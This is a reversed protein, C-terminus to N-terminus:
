SRYSDSSVIAEPKHLMKGTLVLIGKGEENEDLDFSAGTVLPEFEIKFSASEFAIQDNNTDALAENFAYTENFKFGGEAWSIDLPTSTGVGDEFTFTVPEDNLLKTFYEGNTSQDNVTLKIEFKACNAGILKASVDTVKKSITKPDVDFSQTGTITAEAGAVFIDKITYTKGYELQGETPSDAVVVVPVTVDTMSGELDLTTEFTVDRGVDNSASANPDVETVTVSVIAEPKHLMKGTLVLIGKGEENEDLDFSAGTVLPEFEIKFSASEFAIQDNNTDALAENFAYTENFKFGGEAWSIDLPTSTGVGDEFTFTVPEDNLLKTFYEGNTSQDNVTLKIEFKACNAGILKASVDTVKKSITKPDVDFSQTGTITAEAGAVFIDKITYTKGYELQGETPSDAVVVVPVTVDTMSGELDLTTEFTVDRGVDNSASANPDVETVTVSVIAEPKHLMKGTLVLIGKGEENEDLDFSAGTVLPEFEIKFSASEFAIQDNNTDALAENFAYTENFKFGGEAWSIDLPTSTGVGDEFTFTVPEDNLLKTFYEGNTSQDNVTLKIEFKACNAGILKASVDTVKKSITKPDVDFSQTGTITAEAGAVFIDKITYTKGYELQGETPSDAVVVVPVTVDTMSGELDLTTEFTVDRGVDNSASANPDVETVTVSVIAEPKHLMKGTLVLIGKGEENEDLDFSAGTVLPEFEIKFSASEFAIQDNNTDALAENFAYTENFKFGGEAWSIDLPTSTGVGDEFTFTVPEDNLLKTFYEGNTSQDNVTLKIEFKACNAGILKASVDTVKKSITKPDVDFSQTGTITAEAGAVFIDKITYTKGYELQGETPSDAVVVVPVTVDTMSGELDLTTEFTVDRGVDNSASANPDVETVTVSVIAEPKHLMKGTLVLIGKGEENEDLDFSAGTVLPEFEIKFSASEFAIQDNNTDALAENFAYTENFKFGGEAWSIDLPTSTGVGDEFTFTVPEDNLLKTFYEGNTSQDNVTLKIEFKACNAGILKASVDTVKKSITKPDVDFSQTGTITAEAGAVFIDKITYTKGYELQGETPSDAVVVVPVTVDTM